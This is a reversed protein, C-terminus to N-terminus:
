VFWLWHFPVWILFTISKGRSKNSKYMKCTQCVFKKCFFRVSQIHSHCKTLYPVCSSTTENLAHTFLSSIWPARERERNRGRVSLSANGTIEARPMTTQESLCYLRQVASLVLVTERRITGTDPPSRKRKITNDTWTKIAAARSQQKWSTPSPTYGALAAVLWDTDETVLWGSLVHGTNECM